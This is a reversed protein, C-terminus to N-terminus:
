HLAARVPLGLMLGAESDLLEQLRSAVATPDCHENALDVFQQWHRNESAAIARYFASLDPDTDRAELARAILSFREHGRREVVAAVLLRDLLYHAKGRRILENLGRVYPDRTDPGPEVNRGLMIRLVERYHSLEEVALDAMAALLTPKDPYHSAIALAMGSAKKESSAHDRLFSDFDALVAELWAPPTPVLEM